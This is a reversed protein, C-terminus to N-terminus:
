LLAKECVLNPTMMRLIRQTAPLVLGCQSFVAFYRMGACKVRVYEM